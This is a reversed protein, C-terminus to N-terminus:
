SVKNFLDDINPLVLCWGGVVGQLITAFALSMVM